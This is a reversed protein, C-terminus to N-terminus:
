GREDAYAAPREIAEISKLINTRLGAKNTSREWGRIQERLNSVLSRKELPMKPWLRALHRACDPLDFDNTM